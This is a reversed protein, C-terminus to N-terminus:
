TELFCYDLSHYSSCAQLGLAELEQKAKLKTREMQKKELELLEFNRDIM